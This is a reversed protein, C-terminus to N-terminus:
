VPGVFVLACDDTTVVRITDAVGADDGATVVAVVDRGDLVARAALVVVGTPPIVEAECPVAAAADFSEPTPPEAGAAASGRDATPDLTARAAAVLEDLTRVAGLDGVAPDADRALPGAASPAITTTASEEVPSSSQAEAGSGADDAVSATDDSRQDSLTTGVVAGLAVVVVAVAAVLWRTAPPRAGRRPDRRQARRGPAAAGAARSLGDAPDDDAMAELARAVHEDVVSADPGAPPVELQSRVVRLAEVHAALDARSAVLHHQADTADGDVVAHVALEDTSLERTLEDDFPNPEPGNPPPSTM